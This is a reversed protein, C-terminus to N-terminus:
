RRLYQLEIVATISSINRLGKLISNLIINLTPFIQQSFIFLNNVSLYNHKLDDVWLNITSSWICPKLLFPNINSPPFSNLSIKIKRTPTHTDKDATNIQFFDTTFSIFLESM